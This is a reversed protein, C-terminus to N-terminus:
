TLMGANRVKPGSTTVSTKIVSNQTSATQCSGSIHRDGERPVTTRNPSVRAAAKRELNEEPNNNKTKRARTRLRRQRGTGSCGESLSSRRFHRRRAQHFMSLAVAQAARNTYM